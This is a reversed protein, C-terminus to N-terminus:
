RGQLIRVSMFFRCVRLLYVCFQLIYGDGLLHSEPVFM